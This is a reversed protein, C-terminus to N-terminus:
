LVYHLKVTKEGQQSVHNTKVIEMLMHFQFM